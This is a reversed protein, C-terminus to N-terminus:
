RGGRSLKKLLETNYGINFFLEKEKTIKLDEHVAYDCNTLDVMATLDLIMKSDDAFEIILLGKKRFGVLGNHLNKALINRKIYVRKVDNRM